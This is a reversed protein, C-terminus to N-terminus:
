VSGGGHKLVHKVAGALTGFSRADGGRPLSRFSTGLDYVSGWRVRHLLVNGREVVVPIKVGDVTVSM